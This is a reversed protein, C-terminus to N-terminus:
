RSKAPALGPKSCSEGGRFLDAPFPGHELLWLTADAVAALPTLLVKGFTGTRNEFVEVNSCLRMTTGAPPAALPMIPRPATALRPQCRALLVFRDLLTTPDRVVLALAPMAVAPVRLYRYPPAGGVQVLLDIAEIGAAAGGCESRPVLCGLVKGRGDPEFPLLVRWDIREAAAICRPLEPAGVEGDPVTASSSLLARAETEDIACRGFRPAFEGRIELRGDWIREGQHTRTWELEIACREIPGLPEAALLEEVAAADADDMRLSWWTPGDPVEGVAAVCRGRTRAARLVLAPAEPASADLGLAEVAFAAHQQEVSCVIPDPAWLAKTLCGSLPLLALVLCIRRM